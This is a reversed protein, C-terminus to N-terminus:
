THRDNIAPPIGDPSVVDKAAAICASVARDDWEAEVDKKAM